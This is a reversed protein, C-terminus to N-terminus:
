NYDSNQRSTLIINARRAENEILIEIFNSLTRRQKKAMMEAIEHLEPDLRSQIIVSRNLKGGGKTRRAPKDQTAVTNTVGYQLWAPECELAAALKEFQKFTPERRKALYHCVASRTIGIKNALVEQTMALENMRQKMRTLWSEM